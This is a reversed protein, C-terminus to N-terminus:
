GECQQQAIISARNLDFRPESSCFRSDGDWYCVLKHKYAIETGPWIGTWIDGGGEECDCSLRQGGCKLCRATDCGKTHKRGPKVGCDHCNRINAKEEAWLKEILENSPNEIEKWSM